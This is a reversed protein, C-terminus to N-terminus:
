MGGQGLKDMLEYPGLRPAGPTGISSGMRGIGSVSSSGARGISSAGASGLRSAGGRGEGGLKLPEDIDIVADSALTVQEESYPVKKTSGSGGAIMQTVDHPRTMGPPWREADPENKTPPPRDAPMPQPKGYGTVRSPM